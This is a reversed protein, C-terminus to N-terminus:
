LSKFKEYSTSFCLIAELVSSLMKKCFRMLLGHKGYSFPSKETEDLLFKLALGFYMDFLVSGRHNYVVPNQNTDTKNRDLNFQLVDYTETSTRITKYGLQCKLQNAAECCCDALQYLLKNLSFFQCRGCLGGM